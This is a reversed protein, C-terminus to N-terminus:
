RGGIEAVLDFPQGTATEAISDTQTSKVNAFDPVRRLAGAVDTDRSRYGTLRLTAGDWAYRQVWAGDPIAATTQALVALPDHSRRDLSTRQAIAGTVRMRAVMRQAVSVAPRQADVLTQWHEVTAADRWILTAANLAALAGVVFWWARRRPQVDPVLGAARMAPLFDFRMDPLSEGTAIRVAHARISFRELAHGLAQAQALTIAALDCMRAGDEAIEFRIASAMLVANEPLPFYREANLVLMREREARTMPPTAVTRTLANGPALVVTADRRTPEGTEITVQTGDPREFGDKGNFALLTQARTTWALVSRPMLTALEDTWWDFGQRAARFITGLDSNLVANVNM